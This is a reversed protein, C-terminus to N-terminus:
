LTIDYSTIFFGELSNQDSVQMLERLLKETSTSLARLPCVRNLPIPVTMPMPHTNIHKYQTIFYVHVDYNRDIMNEHTRFFNTLLNHYLSVVCCLLSCLAFIIDHLSLFQVSLFNTRQM